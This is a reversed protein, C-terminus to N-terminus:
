LINKMCAQKNIYLINLDIDQSLLYVCPFESICSIPHNKVKEKLILNKLYFNWAKGPQALGGSVITFELYFIM